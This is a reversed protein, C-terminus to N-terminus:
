IKDKGGRRCGLESVCLGVEFWSGVVLAGM